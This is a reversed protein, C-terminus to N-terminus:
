TPVIELIECEATCEGNNVIPIIRLLTSDDTTSTSTYQDTNTSYGGLDTLDAVNADSAGSVLVSIAKIELENSGDNSLSIDYIGGAGSYVATGSIKGITELCVSEVEVMCDTLDTQDTVTGSIWTIVLVALVITFGIILVTAILPSIGRKDM